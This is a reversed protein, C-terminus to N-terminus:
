KKESDKEHITKLLSDAATELRDAAILMLGRVGDDKMKNNNKTHLLDRDIMHKIDNLSAQLRQDREILKTEIRQESKVIEAKIAEQQELFLYRKLMKIGWYGVLMASSYVAYTIENTTFSLVQEPKNSVEM